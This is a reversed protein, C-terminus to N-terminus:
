NFAETSYHNIFMPLGEDMRAHLRENTGVIVPFWVHGFEHDTVGWLRQEKSQYSCFALGPYEMGGVNAAVNVAAPYPYPFWKNSYFEVSAKTYETSREWGNNGNSEKPYASQALATKGNPLNMRAADWIFAKSTGFAIDRSNEIKFEWTVKGSQKPRTLQTNGVENEAILMVTTDSKEAKRMRSIIEKSLAESENVLKGSGVLIPLADHLSLTYIDTTATTDSCCLFFLMSHLPLLVSFTLLRIG